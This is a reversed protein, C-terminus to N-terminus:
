TTAATEPEPPKPAGFQSPDLGRQRLRDAWGSGQGGFSTAASSGASGGPARPVSPAAERIVDRMRAIDADLQEKLVTKDSKKVEGDEVVAEITALSRGAVVSDDDSDTLGYDALLSDRAKEPLKSTEIIRKAEDRLSRLRNTQGLEDRVSERIQNGHAELAAPLAAEIGAQVAEAVTPAITEIVAKKVDENSRLAELIETMDDGKGSGSTANPDDYLAELVSRVRGGAGAKTVLDFSSNEPDNVFGEVIWGRAGNREGLRKNTAQANLSGKIAEPIKRVLAEMADTLMCKGVVAGSDFGLQEDEPGTFNPDWWSEKVVGALESPKRPLGMRAKRAVPSDHNDFMPWGKFTGADRELVSSEYINNYPGRGNCPRILVMNVTGDANFVGDGADAELIFLDHQERILLDSPRPPTATTSM